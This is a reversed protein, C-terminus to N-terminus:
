NRLALHYREIWDLYADGAIVGRRALEVIALQVDDSEVGELRNISLGFQTTPDSREIALGHRRCLEAVENAIADAAAQNKAAHRNQFM